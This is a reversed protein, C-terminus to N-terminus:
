LARSGVSLPEGDRVLLRFSSDTEPDTVPANYENFWGIQTTTSAKASHLPGVRYQITVTSGTSTKYTAVDGLKPAYSGTSSEPEPESPVPKGGSVLLTFRDSATDVCDHRLMTKHGTMYWSKFGNVDLYVVTSLPAEITPKWTAVDGVQPTYSPTLVEFDVPDDGVAVVTGDTFRVWNVLLVNAQSKEIFEVKGTFTMQVVQGPKPLKSM